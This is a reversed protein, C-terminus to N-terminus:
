ARIFLADTITDFGLITIDDIASDSFYSGYINVNYNM